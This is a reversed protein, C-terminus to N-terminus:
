SGAIWFPPGQLTDYEELPRRNERDLSGFDSRCIKVPRFFPHTDDNQCFITSSACRSFSKFFHSVVGALTSEQLDLATLGPRMNYDDWAVSSIPILSLCDQVRGMAEVAAPTEELRLYRKYLRDMLLFQDNQDLSPAAYTKILEFFCLVDDLSGVQLILDGGRFALRDFRLGTM